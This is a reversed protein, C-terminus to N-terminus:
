PLFSIHTWSKTPNEAQGKKRGTPAVARPCTLTMWCRWAALSFTITSHQARGLTAVSMARRATVRARPENLRVGRIAAM